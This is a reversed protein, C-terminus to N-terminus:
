TDSNHRHTRTRARTSARASPGATIKEMTTKVRRAYPIKRRTAKWRDGDCRVCKNGTLSHTRAQTHTRAGTTLYSGGCGWRGLRQVGEYSDGASGERQGPKDARPSHCSLPNFKLAAAMEPYSRSSPWHPSVYESLWSFLCSLSFYYSALCGCM